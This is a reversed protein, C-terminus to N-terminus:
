LLCILIIYIDLKQGTQISVVIKLGVSSSGDERLPGTDLNGTMDGFELFCSVSVPRLDPYTLTSVSLGQFNGTMFSTSTGTEFCTGTDRPKGLSEFM